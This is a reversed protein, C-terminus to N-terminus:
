RRAIGLYESYETIRALAKAARELTPYPLIYHERLKGSVISDKIPPSVMNALVVPKGHKKMLELMHEIDGLEETRSADLHRECKDKVSPLINVLGTLGGVMGVGDIVM